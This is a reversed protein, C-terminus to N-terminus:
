DSPSDSPSDSSSDSASSSSSSSSSGSASSSSSSSGGDQLNLSRLYKKAKIYGSSRKLRSLTADVTKQKIRGQSLLYQYVPIKNCQKFVKNLRLGSAQDFYKKAIEFDGQILEREVIYRYDTAGLSFLLAILEPNFFVQRLYKNLADATVPVLQQELMFKVVKVSYNSLGINFVQVYDVGPSLYYRKFLKIYDHTTMHLILDHYNYGGLSILYEITEQTTKGSVCSMLDNLVAQDIRPDRALLKALDVYNWRVACKFISRYNIGPKEMYRMALELHGGPIAGLILQTYNDGGQSIVYDIISQNGSYGAGRILYNWDAPVIDRLSILYKVTELQGFMAADIIVDFLVGRSLKKGQSILHKLKELHGGEATGRVEEDFSTGGLDKILDIMVQHGGRAARRLARDLFTPTKYEPNRRLGLYFAQLNGAEAARLMIRKPVAGPLFYSRVTAYKADYQDLFAPFTRSPPLDFRQALLNLAERTEFAAPNVQHRAVISEIDLYYILVSDLVLYNGYIQPSFAEATTDM